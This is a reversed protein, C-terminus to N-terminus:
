ASIYKLLAVIVSFDFSWAIVTTLIGAHAKASKLDKLNAAAITAMALLRLGMLIASAM